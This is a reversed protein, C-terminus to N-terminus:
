VFHFIGQLFLHKSKSHASKESNTVKYGKFKPPKIIEGRTNLDQLTQLIQNHNYGFEELEEILTEETIGKPFQNTGYLADILNLIQPYRAKRSFSKIQFAFRNELISVGQM